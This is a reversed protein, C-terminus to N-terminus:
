GPDVTPATGAGRVLRGLAAEAEADSIEDILPHLKERPTM